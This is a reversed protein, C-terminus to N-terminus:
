ETGGNDAPVRNSRIIRLREVMRVTEPNGPSLENSKEYATLANGLDKKLYHVNGLLDFVVSINPYKLALNRLLTEANDYNKRIIESQAQLVGRTVENTAETQQVCALPLASERMNVYVDARSPLMTNPLLVSQSGFGNKELVLQAASDGSISSSPVVLPTKGLKMPAQGPRVVLVDAGEPTSQVNLGSSACGSLALAISVTLWWNFRNFKPRLKLM